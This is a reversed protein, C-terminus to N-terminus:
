KLEEFREVGAQAVEMDQSVKGGSAAVSGVVEGDRKLPLGGGFIVIRNDAVTHLGYLSEGPESMEKLEHTPYGLGAATYAKDRSVIRTPPGAGDMRHQAIVNGEANAVTLSMSLGLDAAKREAVELLEKATELTIKQAM